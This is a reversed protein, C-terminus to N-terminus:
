MKDRNVCKKRLNKKALIAKEAVDCTKQMYPHELSLFSVLEIAHDLHLKETCLYCPLRLHHQVVTNWKYDVSLYTKPQWLYMM